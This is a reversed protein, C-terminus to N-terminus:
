IGIGSGPKCQFREPNVIRDHMRVVVAKIDVVEIVSLGVAITRQKHVVPIPPIEAILIGHDVAVM